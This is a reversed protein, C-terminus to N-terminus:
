PTERRCILISLNTCCETKEAKMSVRSQQGYCVFWSRPMIKTKGTWKELLHNYYTATYSPTTTASDDSGSPSRSIYMCLYASTARKRPEMRRQLRSMQNLSIYADAVKRPGAAGARDRLYTCQQLHELCLNINIEQLKENRASCPLWFGPLIQRIWILLPICPINHQPCSLLGLILLVNAVLSRPPHDDHRPSLCSSLSFIISICEFRSRSRAPLRRAWPQQKTNLLENLDKQWLNCGTKIHITEVHTFRFSLWDATTFQIFNPRRHPHSIVDLSLVLRM